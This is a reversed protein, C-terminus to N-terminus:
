APLTRRRSQPEQAFGRLKPKQSGLARKIPKIKTAGICIKLDQVLGKGEEGSDQFLKMLIWPEAPVVPRAPM